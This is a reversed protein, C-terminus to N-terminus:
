ALDISRRNWNDWAHLNRFGHPWSMCFRQWTNEDFIYLRNAEVRARNHSSSRLWAQLNRNADRDRCTIVYVSQSNNM